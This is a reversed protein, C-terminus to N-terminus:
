KLANVLKKRFLTLFFMIHLSPHFAWSAAKRTKKQCKCQFQSHLMFTGDIYLLIIKLIKLSWARSINAPKSKHWLDISHGFQYAPLDPHKHLWLPRNTLIPRSVYYSRDRSNLLFVTLNTLSASFITLCFSPSKTSTIRSNVSHWSATDHLAQKTPPKALKLANQTSNLTGENGM